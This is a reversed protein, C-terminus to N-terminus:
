HSFPNQTKEFSFVEDPAKKISKMESKNATKRNETVCCEAIEKLAHKEEVNIMNFSRKYPEYSTSSLIKLTTDVRIFYNAGANLNLSLVALGSYNKDPKIKFNYEDPKLLLRLRNGNKISDELKDNIYLDLSYM